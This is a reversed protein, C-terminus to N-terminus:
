PTEVLLRGQERGSAIDVFVLTTQGNEHLFELTVFVEGTHVKYLSSGTPTQVSGINPMATAIDGVRQDKSMVTAQKPADSIMNVARYALTGFIVLIGIIIAVGQWLVLAKLRPSIMPIEDESQNSTVEPEQPTM